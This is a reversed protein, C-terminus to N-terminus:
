RGNERETEYATIERVKGSFCAYLKGHRGGLIGMEGPTRRQTRSESSAGDNLFDLIHIYEHTMVKVYMRKFDGLRAAMRMQPLDLTIWADQIVRDKGGFLVSALGALPAPLRGHVVRFPVDAPLAAEVRHFISGEPACDSMLPREAAECCAFTMVALAGLIIFPNDPLRIRM